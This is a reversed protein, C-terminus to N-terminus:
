DNRSPPYLSVDDSFGSQPAVVHVVEDIRRRLAM